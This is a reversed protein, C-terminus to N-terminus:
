IICCPHDGGFRVNPPDPSLNLKRLLAQRPIYITRDPMQVAVEQIASLLQDTMKRADTSNRVPGLLPIGANLLISTAQEVESECTPGLVASIGGYTAIETAAERASEASCDTDSRILKIPHGFLKARDDLAIEIGQLSGIAEPRQEGSTALITGIVVTGNPWIKLCGLPDLCQYAPQACSVLLMSLIFSGSWAPPLWKM